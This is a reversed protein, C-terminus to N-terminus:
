EDGRVDDDPLTGSIRRHLRERLARMRKLQEAISLPFPGAGIINAKQERQVAEELQERKTKDQGGTRQSKGYAKWGWGALGALSLVLLAIGVYLAM